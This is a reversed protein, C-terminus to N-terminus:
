GSTKFSLKNRRNSIKQPVRNEAVEITKPLKEVLPTEALALPAEVLTDPTSVTCMDVIGVSQKLRAHATYLEARALNERLSALERMLEEKVLYTEPKDDETVSKHLAETIKTQINLAKWALSLDYDLTDIQQRAIMVQAMIASALVATENQSDRLRSQGRRKTEKIQGLRLLDWSLNLGASAFSQNLLFSNSDTNAGLFLKLAPLHSLVAERNDLEILDKAYLAQRVEPRNKYALEVLTNVDSRALEGLDQPLHTESLSFNTGLPLNMLRALDAKSSTLGRYISEYWRNIDILERQFMLEDLTKEEDSDIRDKSLKLAYEIRSKLWDSKQAAQEYAVARWYANEVDVILKNCLYQNQEGQKFASITRKNARLGSMGIELIDWTATLNSVAFARDQGTFFDEPITADQESVRVGVSGNTNSRWQGFSNLYVKPLFDRGRQGSRRITESFQREQRSYEANHMISRKQAAELTVPTDQNELPLAAPRLMTDTIDELNAPTYDTPASICGSLSISIAILAVSYLKKIRIHRVTNKM